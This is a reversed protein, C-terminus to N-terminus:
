FVIGNRHGQDHRTEGPVESCMGKRAIVCDGLLSQAFCQVRDDDRYGADPFQGLFFTPQVWRRCRLPVRGYACDDWLQVVNRLLWGEGVREPGWVRQLLPGDTLVNPAQVAVEYLM